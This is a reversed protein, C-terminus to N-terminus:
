SVYQNVMNSHPVKDVCEFVCLSSSFQFHFFHLFLPTVEECRVAEYCSTAPGLLPALENKSKLWTESIFALYYMTRMWFLAVWNRDLSRVNSLLRKVICESYM